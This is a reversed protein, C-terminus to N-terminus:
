LRYECRSTCTEEVIVSHLLDRIRHDKTLKNYLWEALAESTPSELGTSDNLHWHDLSEEVIPKLVASLDGYDVLMGRKPGAVELTDGVCVVTAQWSHGHLRRCKGDHHPLQHSAEFRVTKSLRYM